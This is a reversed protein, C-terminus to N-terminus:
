KLLIITATTQGMQSALADEWHSQCIEVLTITHKQTRKFKVTSLSVPNDDAIRVAQAKNIVQYLM